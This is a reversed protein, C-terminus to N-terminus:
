WQSVNVEFVRVCNDAGCSALQNNQSDETKESESSRWALRQVNSAHCMFPDLRAVANATFGAVSTSGHESRIGSLSWLEIFGNELGVALLGHNTQRELGLWSLATVSSPFPPLTSLQKVSTRSVVSWLKVTKDRSGTAFENGFTNWSCAWIIRKNDEQRVILEYKTEDM